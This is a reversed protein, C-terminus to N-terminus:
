AAGPPAIGPGRIGPEGAVAGAELYVRQVEPHAARIAAEIRAASAAVESAPVDARFEVDLNVLVDATGLHMTLPRGARVVAPDAAAIREIDLVTAEDAAEGVLLGRSEYVLFVAVGALVVGIAISALGDWLPDNFFHGLWIGVAALVLGALAATDEVLVIFIAPDKSTRIARWVGVGPLTKRLERLALGWSLAEFVFAAALTVYNWTPDELASPHQIHTIGEYLSMGGGVGFLVVAVILSWFYLEKGHGFPHDRDAPRRSRKLGLLLLLQNGTDVVSHIGESLMASSGTFAAAAFKTAAIATNAAIAGYLAVPKESSSM